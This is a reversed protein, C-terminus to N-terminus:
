EHTGKALSLIPTVLASNEFGHRLDADPITEAIKRIMDASARYDETAGDQDGLTMRAQARAARIRWLLSRYDFEEAPHLAEDAATLAEDNRGLALLVRLKLELSQLWTERNGSREADAAARTALELAGDLEGRSLLAESQALRSLQAGIEALTQEAEDVLNRSALGLRALSTVRVNYM